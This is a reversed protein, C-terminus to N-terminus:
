RLRSPSAPGSGAGTYARLGYLEQLRQSLPPPGGEFFPRAEFNPRVFRRRPMTFWDEKNPWHSGTALLEYAQRKRQYLAAPTLRAPLMCVFVVARFGPRLGLPDGGCHVLDSRWLIVDGKAVPVRRSSRGAAKLFEKDEETLIYWDRNPSKALQQHHQHSGPWCSFCGDGPEQDLLAVSAQICHLGQKRACQDFHDISRRSLPKRTPRQFCFGDKSTHLERSGYLPEFLKKALLERLEGFVWGAQYTQMMDRQTHPWPDTHGSGYWSSADDRRVAPNVTEVFSWMRDLASAAEAASLIGRLVAFGSSELEALINQAFETGAVLARLPGPLPSAVDPPGLSPAVKTAATRRRTARPRENAPEAARTTAAGAAGFAEAPTEM